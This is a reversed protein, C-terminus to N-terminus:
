RWAARNGADAAVYHVDVNVGPPLAALHFHAPAYPRLAEAADGNIKMQLGGDKVLMRLSVAAEHNWYTGAIETRQEATM